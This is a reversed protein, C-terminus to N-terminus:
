AISIVICLCILHLKAGDPGNYPKVLRPINSMQWSRPVCGHQGEAWHPM